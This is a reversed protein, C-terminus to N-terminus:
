IERKNKLRQNIIILLKESNYLLMDKPRSNNFIPNEIYFWNMAKEEDNFHSIVLSIVQLCDHYQKHDHTNTLNSTLFRVFRRLQFNELVLFLIILLLIIVIM